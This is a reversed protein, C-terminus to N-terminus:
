VDIRTSHHIAATNKYTRILLMCTLMAPVHLSINKIDQVSM